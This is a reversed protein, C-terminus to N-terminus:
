PLDTEPEVGIVIDLYSAVSNGAQSAPHFRSRYLSRTIQELLESPVVFSGVPEVREPLGASSVYVRFTLLLNLKQPYSEVFSFDPASVFRPAILDPPSGVKDRPQSAESASTEDPVPATAAAQVFRLDEAPSGAPAIPPKIFRVSLPEQPSSGPPAGTRITVSQDWTRLWDSLYAASLHIGLSVLLALRLTRTM